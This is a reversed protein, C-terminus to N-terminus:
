GKRPTLLAKRQVGGRRLQSLEALAAAKSLKRPPTKGSRLAAVEARAAAVSRGTKANSNITSILAAPNSPVSVVSIELLTMRTILSGRRDERPISELPIFGVSIGRLVGARVAAWVEDAKVSAGAPLLIAKGQLKGAVVSLEVVRGIAAGHDHGALLIPNANFRDLVWGRPDLVDGDADRTADSAVFSFTRDETTDTVLAKVTLHSPASKTVYGAPLMESAVFAATGDRFLDHALRAPIKAVDGVRHPAYDRLFKVTVPPRPFVDDRVLM